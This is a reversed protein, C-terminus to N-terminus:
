EDNSAILKIKKHQRRGDVDIEDLVDENCIIKQNQLDQSTKCYLLCTSCHILM